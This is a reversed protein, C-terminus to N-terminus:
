RRRHPVAVAHCRPARVPWEGNISAEEGSNLTSPVGIIAHNLLLYSRPYLHLPCLTSCRDKLGVGGCVCSDVVSCRNGLGRTAVLQKFTATAYVVESFDGM